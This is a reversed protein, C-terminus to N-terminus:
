FSTGRCRHGRGLYCFVLTFCFRSTCIRLCRVCVGSIEYREAQSLLTRRFILYCIEASHQITCNIVYRFSVINPHYYFITWSRLRFTEGPLRGGVRRSRTIIYTYIFTARHLVCRRRVATPPRSDITRSTVHGTGPRPMPELVDGGQVRVVATSVSRRDV